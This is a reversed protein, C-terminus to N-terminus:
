EGGTHRSCKPRSRTLASACFIESVAAASMEALGAHDLDIGGALDDVAGFMGIRTIEGVPAGEWGDSSKGAVKFKKIREVKKGL